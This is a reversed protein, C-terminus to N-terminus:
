PGPGPRRATPDSASWTTRWPRAPGAARVWRPAGPSWANRAPGPGAPRPSARAPGPRGAPGAGASSRSAPPSWFAPRPPPASVSNPRVAGAGLGHVLYAQLGSAATPSSDGSLPVSATPDFPECGIGPFWVEAWAHADSATIDYMGTFPNRTGPAYGVALRSPIHLSRLMVVLSTAIQECFGQRTVFLFRDVADAGAPLPPPDLSYRTHRGMWAELALVQDYTTPAAATVRAALQRVRATTPLVYGYRATIAGPTGARVRDAARLTAATVLAPDSVVTYVTGPGLEENARVTGDSLEEARGGALYVQSLPDAGFVLNPGPRLVYFTQVFDPGTAAGSGDQRPLPVSIPPGTPLPAGRGDSITWTRGNWDDFTQGMWLAPRGARVRMVLTNDPRGRAALDLQNSFGFYGFPDPGARAARGRRTEAALGAAPNDRGLSPNDLIGPALPVLPRLAAPFILPQTTGAAPLILFFGLGAALSLLLAPALPLSTREPGARGEEPSLAGLAATTQRHALLLGTMVALSWVALFPWLAMSVSLIGAAAMVPVSVYLSFLLDRRSTADFSQLVQVILLLEALPTEADAVVGGAIGTLTKLFWAFTVIAGLALVTKTGYGPRHRTRWAFAFGIGLGGLVALQFVGGLVGQALVGAAATGAAVGDALRLGVGEEAPQRANVQRLRDGLNARPRRRPEAPAGQVRRQEEWAVAFAGDIRVSAGGGPAPPPTGPGARALRRSVEARSRVPELRGGGAESTSLVVARGAGLAEVALGAALAAATEAPGVPGSLDAVVVLAAPEPDETERVMPHGWRATAPWHVLRLSDGSRYARVGKPLDHGARTVARAAEPGARAGATLPDLGTALPAPGVELAPDLDFRFRRSWGFLGFPGAATAEVVLHDTQGRRAPRCSLQGRAPGPRARRADGTGGALALRLEMGSGRSRARVTVRAPDGATADRPAEVLEVECGALTWAPWAAALVLLGLLACLLVGVWGAGSARGALYLVGAMGLLGAAPRVRAPRLGRNKM